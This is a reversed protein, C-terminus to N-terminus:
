LQLLSKSVYTQRGAMPPVLAHRSPLALEMTVLLLLSILLAHQVPATRLQLQLLSKLVFTQEVMPLVLAHRSPLAIPRLTPVLREQVVLPV